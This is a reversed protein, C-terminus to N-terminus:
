REQTVPSRVPRPGGSRKAVSLEAVDFELGFDEPVPASEYFSVHTDCALVSMGGTLPIARTAARQCGDEVWWACRIRDVSM